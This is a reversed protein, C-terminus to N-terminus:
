KSSPVLPGPLTAPPPELSHARAGSGSAASLSCAFLYSDLCLSSSSTVNSIQYVFTRSIAWRGLPRMISIGTFGNTDNTNPQTMQDGMNFRNALSKTAPCSTFCGFLIIYILLPAKQKRNEKILYGRAVNNLCSVVWLENAKIDGPPGKCPLTFSGTKKCPHKQTRLNPWRQCTLVTVKLM